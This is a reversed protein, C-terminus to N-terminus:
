NNLLKRYKDLHQQRQTELEKREEESWQAYALRIAIGDAKMKENMAEQSIPALDSQKFKPKCNLLAKRKNENDENSTTFLHEAFM